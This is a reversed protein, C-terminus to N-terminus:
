NEKEKGNEMLKLRYSMYSTVVLILGYIGWNDAMPLGVRDAGFMAFLGVALLTWEFWGFFKDTM